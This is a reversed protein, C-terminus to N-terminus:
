GQDPLLRFEVQKITGAFRGEGGYEPSVNSGLDSGIDLTEESSFRLSTAVEGAGVTDGNVSLTIDATYPGTKRLEVGM